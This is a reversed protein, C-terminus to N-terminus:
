TDDNNDEELISDTDEYVYDSRFVFESTKHKKAEEHKLLEIQFLIDGYAAWQGLLFGYLAQGSIYQFAGPGLRVEYREEESTKRFDMKNFHDYAKEAYEKLENIM